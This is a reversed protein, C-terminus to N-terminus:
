EATGVLYRAPWRRYWSDFKKEAVHGDSYTVIYTATASGGPHATEIQKKVGKALTDTETYIPDGPSTETLLTPGKIEVKRGDSTGYLEFTAKDGEVYGFIMIAAGTDNVFRLDVDPDYITADLGPGIFKGTEDREYYSVRYSHNRRATIPLGANIIARFLTTSVQCLGGGFEPITQDGKIVLEPLYGTTNDITGLAKLTSFEQGNEIILGSLFKVGNKINSIRNRPSGTFPTTAKGILETIGSLDGINGFSPRTIRVPLVETAYGAEQKDRRDIITNKIIEITKDEELARGLKPPMFHTVRGEQTEIVAKVPAINLTKAIVTVYASIKQDDLVPILRAGDYDSRIWSGITARSITFVYDEYTLTFSYGMMREAAALADNALAPDAQPPDEHLVVKIPSSDLEEARSILAARLEDRGITQGAKTDLLLEARGSEIKLRIDRRPEGITDAVEDLINSIDEDDLRIPASIRTGVLASVVREGWRDFFSGQRGVQWAQELAATPFNDDFFIDLSVSATKGDASVSIPFNRLEEMRQAIQELADDRTMGGVHFSGVSVRPMVRDNYAYAFVGFGFCLLIALWAIVVLNWKHRKSPM